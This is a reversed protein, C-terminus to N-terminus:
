LALLRYLIRTAIKRNMGPLGALENIDAHAIQDSSSYRQLLMRKRKEGIGPIDDLFSRSLAKERLRRHFSVAFRHAEDRVKMLFRLAPSDKELVLPEKQEPLFLHEFRKAIAMLKMDLFEEAKLVKFAANLQGKGGDIMLLDPRFTEKGEKLAHVLRRVVEAISATDDIGAVTKIHYKRYDNKEPLERYFTVKSAVTHTGRINSIDICAVREPVTELGLLRKLEQTASLGIGAQPRSTYFRKKRLRGLAEIQEKYVQAEEYRYDKSAEEMGETLYDIFSKKGGGLFSCIEQILADHEPKVEPKFCPAICQGLHYYLCPKKPLSSCKRIPFLSHIIRVAERLLYGDTYPGYYRAKKETKSRTLTLLPFKEASIKILPFSKDDKQRTNYRPSYENILNAELLLADVETPTEITDIDEIKAIMVAVKPSVAERGSFYSTVRRRLSVAKGIYLVEGKKDKMFYVGPGNPINSLKEKLKSPDM